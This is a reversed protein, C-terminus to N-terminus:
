SRLRKGREWPERATDVVGIKFWWRGGCKRIRGERMELKWAQREGVM